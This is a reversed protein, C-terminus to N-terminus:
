HAFRMDHIARLKTKTQKKFFFELGSLVNWNTKECDTLLETISLAMKQKERERGRVDAM